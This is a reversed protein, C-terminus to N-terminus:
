PFHASALSSLAAPTDVDVCIGADTLALRSLADRHQRVVGRAGEEGGCHALVPFFESGFGVPHGPSGQYWPQVIRDRASALAVERLTDPRLLPLDAPLILVVDASDRVWQVAAAISAGLGGDAGEIFLAKAEALKDDARLVLRYDLGSAAVTALSQELLTRGNPLPARRKDGGFRRSAGAAMVLVVVALGAPHVFPHTM